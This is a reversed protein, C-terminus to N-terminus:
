FKQRGKQKNILTPGEIEQDLVGKQHDLVAKSLGSIFWDFRRNKIQSYFLRNYPFTPQRANQQGGVHSNCYLHISIKKVQFLWLEQM